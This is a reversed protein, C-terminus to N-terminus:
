RPRQCTAKALTRMRLLGYVVAGIMAVTPGVDVASPQIALPFNALAWVVPEPESTLPERRQNPSAVPSLHTWALRTFNILYGGAGLGAPVGPEACGGVPLVSPFGFFMSRVFGPNMRNAAMAGSSMASILCCANLVCTFARM